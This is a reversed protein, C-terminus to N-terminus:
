SHFLRSLSMLSNKKKKKKKKKKFNSKYQVVWLHASYDSHSDTQGNYINLHLINIITSGRPINQDFKAYKYMDVHDFWQCACCGKKISSAKSLMLRAPRPWNTFISMVRSVCPANPYFKVHKIFYM